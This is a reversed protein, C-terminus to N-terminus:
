LPIGYKTIIQEYIFRATSVASNNPLTRAEVWKTLYEMAVVIYQCRRIKSVKLPGIFDLGWREFREQAHSLYLPMFDRKPLKGARQCTDCEVVWERADNYVIPWWLGALLIKRVTTDPGMHGGVPGEHAEKLVQPIEEELVCRQLIHNSGNQLTTRQDVPLYSEQNDIQM